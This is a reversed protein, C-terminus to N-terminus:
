EDKNLCEGRAEIHIDTVDLGRAMLKRRLLEEIEDDLPFCKIKNCENCIFHLHKEQLLEYRRTGDQFVTSRLFGGVELAQLERYVTSAASVFGQRELEVYVEQPTMHEVHEALLEIIKKRASTLRLGEKRMSVYIDDKKHTNM